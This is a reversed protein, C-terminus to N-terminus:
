LLRRRQRKCGKVVWRPVKADDEGVAQCQRLVPRLAYSIYSCQGLLQGKPPSSELTNQIGPQIKLPRAVAEAVARKPGRGHEDKSRRLRRGKGKAKDDETPVEAESPASTMM